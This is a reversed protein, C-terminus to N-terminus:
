KCTGGCARPISGMKANEIPDVGLNGRLRPSLGGATSDIAMLM